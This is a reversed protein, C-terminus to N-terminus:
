ASLCSGVYPETSRNTIATSGLSGLEIFMTTMGLRKLWKRINPTTFEVRQRQSHVDAVRASHVNAQPMRSCVGVEVIELGRDGSVAAYVRCRVDAAATGHGPNENRKRSCYM